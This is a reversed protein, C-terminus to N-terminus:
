HPHSGHTAERTDRGLLLQVAIANSARARERLVPMSERLQARVAEREDWARDISAILTGAGFRDLSQTRLGLAEVFSSVKPAYTLPALPVEGIAAFMLFHLRMGVAFEFHSLLSLMQGASYRGRLVSAHRLLKMRSLIGHAEHMDRHEHEMPVLVVHADLRDVIFDAADAFMTRYDIRALTPAAPGPERASMAVLRRDRALGEAELWGAGLPEPELLLGPDATVRVEARLGSSELLHKSWRDRVTVARAMHLCSCVRTQSVPNDLPGVGVAYIMVPVGLEHALTAERLYVDVEDDFLIGGGGLIFLDLQALEQRAEERLLKRVPVAHEVRQHALTHEPDRTFVTIEVPLSRRLEAVIGHLIAEDGLNRGGYSGSIGVRFVRNAPV